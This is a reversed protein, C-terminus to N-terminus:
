RCMCGIFSGSGDNMVHLNLTDVYGTLKQRLIDCLDFCDVETTVVIGEMIEKQVSEKKGAIDLLGKVQFSRYLIITLTIAPTLLIVAITYGDSLLKPIHKDLSILPIGSMRVPKNNHRTSGKRNVAFGTLRGFESILSGTITGGLLSDFSILNKFVEDSFLKNICINSSAAPGVIFLNSM